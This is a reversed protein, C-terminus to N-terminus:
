PAKAGGSPPSGGEGGTPAPSVIKVEVPPTPVPEPTALGLERAEKINAPDQLFRLFQAPDQGFRDRVKAPVTMFREEADKVIHLADQYDYSDPLDTYAGSALNAALMQQMHHPKFQKVVNNIDCEAKFEQKTMSPLEVLEGTKPDVVVNDFTVRKHPRYFSRLQKAM